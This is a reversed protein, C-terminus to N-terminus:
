YGLFSVRSDIILKSICNVKSSLGSDSLLLHPLNGLLLLLKPQLIQIVSGGHVSGGDGVKERKAGRKERLDLFIGLFQVKQSFKEHFVQREWV